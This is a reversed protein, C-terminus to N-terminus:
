GVCGAAVAHHESELEDLTNVNAYWSAIEFACVVKGDDVACQILDPLEKEQRVQNIPTHHIYDFISNRFLCNGTGQINNMPNRPKEILRHIRADQGDLFLAYTKSIRTIDDVQVVGCMGFAGSEEFKARMEAHRPERMIEDALFLFFDSGAVTERTCELAHVLGKREWQIVYKIPLGRYSNGFENIISEARYGVLLVISDVQARLANELSYELIYRGEHRLMCKNRAATVDNLRSGRGGALVVATM